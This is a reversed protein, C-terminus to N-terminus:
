YYGMSKDVDRPIGPMDGRSYVEGLREYADAIGLDGVEELTRRAQVLASEDAPTELIVKATAYRGFPSGREASLQFLDSAAAANREVGWGNEYCRGLLFQGM